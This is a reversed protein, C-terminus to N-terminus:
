SQNSQEGLILVHKQFNTEKECYIIKQMCTLYRINSNGFKGKTKM